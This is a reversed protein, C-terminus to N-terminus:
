FEDQDDKHKKNYEKAVALAKKKTKHRSVVFSDNRGREMVEWGGIEKWPPDTQKYWPEIWAM